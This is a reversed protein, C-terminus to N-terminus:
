PTMFVAVECARMAGFRARKKKLELAREREVAKQNAPDLELVRDRCDRSRSEPAPVGAAERDYRRIM